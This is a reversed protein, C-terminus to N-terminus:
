NRLNAEVRVRMKFAKISRDDEKFRLRQQAHVSKQCVKTCSGYIFLKNETTKTPDHRLSCSHSGSNDKCGSNILSTSNMNVALMCCYELYAKNPKKINLAEHSILNLHFKLCLMTCMSESCVLLIIQAKSTSFSACFDRFVQPSVPLRSNQMMVQEQGM